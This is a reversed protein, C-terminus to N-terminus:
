IKEGGEMWGLCMELVVILVFLLVEFGQDYGGKSHGYMKEYM